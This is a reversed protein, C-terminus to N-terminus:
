SFTPKELTKSADVWHLGLFCSKQFFHFGSIKKAGGSSILEQFFTPNHQKGNKGHFINDTKLPLDIFDSFIYIIKPVM